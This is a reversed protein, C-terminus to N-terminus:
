FMFVGGKLGEESFSSLRLDNFPKHKKHNEEFFRRQKEVRKPLTDM